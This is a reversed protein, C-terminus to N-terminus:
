YDEAGFECECADIDSAIADKIIYNGEDDGQKDDSGSEQTETPSTLVLDPVQEPAERRRVRAGGREANHSLYEPFRSGPGDRSLARPFEAHTLIFNAAPNIERHPRNNTTHNQPRGPRPPPHYAFSTETDATATSVANPLTQLPSPGHEQGGIVLHFMEMHISPCYESKKNGVRNKAVENGGDNEEPPTVITVPIREPPATPPPRPVVRRAPVLGPVPRQELQHGTLHPQITTESTHSPSPPQTDDAITDFVRGYRREAEDPIHRRRRRRQQHPPSTPPTEQRLPPQSTNDADAVSNLPLPLPHHSTVPSHSTELQSTKTSSGPTYMDGADRVNIM